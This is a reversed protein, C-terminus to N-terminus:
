AVLHMDCSRLMATVKNAGDNRQRRWGVACDQGKVEEQLNAMVQVAEKWGTSM